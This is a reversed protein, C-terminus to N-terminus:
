QAPTAASLIERRTPRSPCQTAAMAVILQTPNKASGNTARDPMPAVASSTTMTIQATVDAAIRAAGNDNSPLYAARGAIGKRAPKAMSPRPM